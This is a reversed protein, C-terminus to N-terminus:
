EGAEPPAPPPGDPKDEPKPPPPFDAADLKLDDNRDMKEFRDEQEDEGLKAIWPAKRFEEFSVSGDKDGDLRDILAQPDRDAGGRRGGPGGRPRDAPSLKGDDNRDLRDFFRRRREEPLKQVFASTLFEEYSVSGNHDRDLEKLNPGRGRPPGKPLDDAKILGDGNKDLRKFIEQRKEEPLNTVREMSAFEAPTVAGDGDKDGKRIFDGFFKRHGPPRPPQPKDDGTPKEEEAMLCTVGLLAILSSRILNM